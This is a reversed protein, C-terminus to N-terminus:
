SPHRLVGRHFALMDAAFLAPQDDRAGLRAGQRGFGAKMADRFQHLDTRAPDPVGTTPDIMAGDDALYEIPASPSVRAEAIEHIDEHRDFSHHAGPVVRMGATGGTLAIAQIQAQVAMVSCWEDQDGIIARVVTVGVDPRAFQQGCWPYAAYVGALRHEGVIPDAFQRMAAMMVAAGGRSHGQAAVRTSDVRPDDALAALAFLVDVASAAFSYQTQNAVTSSVSRATFPDLVCVGFGEGLLTAAHMVHNPSVGASGPVVMVTPHPGSGDPFAMLADIDLRASGGRAHIAEHFNVPNATGIRCLEVQSARLSEAAAVLPSNM